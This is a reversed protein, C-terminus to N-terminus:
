VKKPDLVDRLGDGMFNFALVTIMLAMGPAVVLWPCTALYQRGDTIMNGWSPQPAPIGLNLFSLAAELIIANGIRSSALIILSTTVNPLIQKFIIHPSSAGMVKSSSVFEQKKVVMVNNRTVRAYRVWGSFVLVGVLNPISPGLVSMIALGLVINPISLVIDCARMVITDFTGGYFGAFLGLVTGIILQLFVASLAILLSSRGGFIMRTLVDRGMQDTGMIHISSPAQLRSILDMGIPDYKCLYPGILVVLVVIVMLILGVVFFPSKRMRKLLISRNM